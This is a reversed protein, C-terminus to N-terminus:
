RNSYKSEWQRNDKPVKTPNHKKIEEDKWRQKRAQVRFPKKRSQRQQNQRIRIQNKKNNNNNNKSLKIETRDINKMESLERQIRQFHKIMGEYEAM